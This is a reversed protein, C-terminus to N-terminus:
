VLQQSITALYAAANAGVRGSRSRLQLLSRIARQAELFADGAANADANEQAQGTLAARAGAHTVAVTHDESSPHSLRVLDWGTLPVCWEVTGKGLADLTIEVKTSAGMGNSVEITVKSNPQAADSFAITLKDGAAVPSPATGAFRDTM